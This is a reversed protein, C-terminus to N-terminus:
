LKKVFHQPSALLLYFYEKKCLLQNQESFELINTVIIKYNYKRENEPILKRIPIKKTVFM